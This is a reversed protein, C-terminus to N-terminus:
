PLTQRAKGQCLRSIACSLTGGAAHVSGAISHPQTKGFSVVANTLADCARTWVTTSLHSQGLTGGTTVTNYTSHGVMGLMILQAPPM